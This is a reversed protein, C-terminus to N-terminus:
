PGGAKGMITAMLGLMLFGQMALGLLGCIVGGIIGVWCHAKGRAEPYMKAYNLGKVGYVVAVIALVVGIVGVLPLCASVSFVGSYYAVLSAKNKYPIITSLVADDGSPPPGPTPPQLPANPSQYPNEPM